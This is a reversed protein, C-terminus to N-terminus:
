TVIKDVCDLGAILPSPMLLPGVRLLAAVSAGTEVNGSVCTKARAGAYSLFPLKMM